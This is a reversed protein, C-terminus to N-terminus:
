CRLTSLYQVLASVTPKKRKGIWLDYDSKSQSVFPELVRSVFVNSHREPGSGDSISKLKWRLASKHILMRYWANTPPFKLVYRRRSGFLSNSHDSRIISLYVFRYEPPITLFRQFEQEVLLLFILEKPDESQLIRAFEDEDNNVNLAATSSVLESVSVKMAKRGGGSGSSEGEGGSTSSGGSM